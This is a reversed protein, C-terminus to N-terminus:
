CLRDHQRWNNSFGMHVAKFVSFGNMIKHIIYHNCSSITGFLLQWTQRNTEYPQYAQEIKNYKSLPNRYFQRWGESKGKSVYKKLCKNNSHPILVIAYVHVNYFHSVVLKTQNKHNVLQM